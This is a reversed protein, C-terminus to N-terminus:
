EPLVTVDAGCNRLLPAVDAPLLESIRHHEEQYLQAGLASPDAREASFERMLGFINHETVETERARLWRGRAAEIAAEEIRAEHSPLRRAIAAEEPFLLADFTFVLATGFEGRTVRKWLDGRKTWELKTVSRPREVSSWYGFDSVGRMRRLLRYSAEEDEAIVHGIFGHLDPVHWLAVKVEFDVEPDRICTALVKQRRGRMERHATSLPVTTAPTRGAARALIADDVLEAARRALFTELREDCLAKVKNELRRMLAM